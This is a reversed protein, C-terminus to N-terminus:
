ERLAAVARQARPLLVASVDTSLAGQLEELVRRAHRLTCLIDFQTGTLGQFTDLADFM